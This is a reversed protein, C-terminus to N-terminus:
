FLIIDQSIYKFFTSGPAPNSGAIERKGSPRGVQSPWGPMIILAQPQIQVLMKRIKQVIGFISEHPNWEVSKALNYSGPMHYNFARLQIQVLSSGFVARVGQWVQGDPCIIISLRPSSKFWCRGPKKSLRSISEHPSDIWVKALNYSGLMDTSLDSPWTKGNFESSSEGTRCWNM